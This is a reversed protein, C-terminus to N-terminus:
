LVTRNRGRTDRGKRESRLREGLQFVSVGRSIRLFHSAEGAPTCGRRPPRRGPRTRPLRFLLATRVPVIRVLEGQQVLVNESSRAAASGSMSRSSFCSSSRSAGRRWVARSHRRWSFSTGRVDTREDVGLERPTRRGSRQVGPETQDELVLVLPLLMKADPRDLQRVRLSILRSELRRHGLGPDVAGELETAERHNSGLRDGTARLGLFQGLLELFGPSDEDLRGLLFQPRDGGDM